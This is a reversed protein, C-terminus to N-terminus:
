LGCKYIHATTWVIAAAGLFMGFGATCLPGTVVGIYCSGQLGITVLGFKYARLTDQHCAYQHKEEEGPGTGGGEPPAPLTPRKM